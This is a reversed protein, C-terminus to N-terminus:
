AVDYLLTGWGLKPTNNKDLSTLLSHWAIDPVIADIRHDAAAAVLQIGGGYSGGAMGVRPDGPRDLQAEPQRALWSILASVDRGEYGPKDM